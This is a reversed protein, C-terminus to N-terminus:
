TAHGGYGGHGEDGWPHALHRDTTEVTAGLDGLVSVARQVAVGIAPAVPIHGFDESWAIRLGRVGSELDVLIDPAPGTLKWADHRDPGSIVQQLFAADRVTRAMPGLSGATSYSFTGYSSVRGPTPYLGFVGCLSSPIRISGGGDSGVALPVLGAAVCAGSGGSSAGSIRTVDWPNVSEDVLRTKSRPWSAFEPLQTKGIIIAGAARLRQAVTADKSPVFRRFVLSGGTSPIGETWIEDKLAVPVGHLPGLDEGGAVAREAVRAQELARDAAVTIFSHLHPEVADIRELCARAVEVPSVSGAGILERLELASLWALEQDM